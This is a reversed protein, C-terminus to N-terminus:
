VIVDTNESENVFHTSTSAQPFNHSAPTGSRVGPVADASSTNNFVSDANQDTAGIGAMGNPVARYDTQSSPRLTDDNVGGYGPTENYPHGDVTRDGYENPVASDTLSERHAINDAANSHSPLTENGLVTDGIPRSTDVLAATRPLENVTEYDNGSRTTSHYDDLMGDDGAAEVADGTIGGALAGAVGGIIAGVPGGILTGALGGAIAGAAIGANGDNSTAPEGTVINHGGITPSVVPEDNSQRINENYSASSVTSTHQNTGLGVADSYGSGVGYNPTAGEGVGTVTNDNDVRDVAGVALGSAGAGILGGSVAGVVTGV